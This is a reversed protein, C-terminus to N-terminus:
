NLFCNLVPQCQLLLFYHKLRTIGHLNRLKTIAFDFFNHYRRFIQGFIFFLVLRLEFMEILDPDSFNNVRGAAAGTHNNIFFSFLM